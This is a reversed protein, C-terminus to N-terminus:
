QGGIKVLGKKLVMPGIRVFEHLFDCRGTNEVAHMVAVRGFYPGRHALFNAFESSGFVELLTDVEYDLPAPTPCAQVRQSEWERYTTLLRV